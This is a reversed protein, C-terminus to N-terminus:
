WTNPSTPPSTVSSLSDSSLKARIGFVQTQVGYETAQFKPRRVKTEQGPAPAASIILAVPLAFRVVLNMLKGTMGRVWERPRYM